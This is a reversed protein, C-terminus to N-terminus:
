IVFQESLRQLGEAEKALNLTAKSLQETSTLNQRAVMAIQEVAKVVMDGGKKQEVAGDAVQQTMRNMTEVARMIEKAGKAQETAGNTVERTIHQMNAATKLIQSAGSSQEQTASYVESVLTASQNVSDVIRQLITRTLEMAQNTDKQVAEVFATIERTSHMSREALRKVEEAVVAFGKGADGARAAEIAANLALLNTQDAIEEIMKVIKGIDKSSAGISTIMRTLEAGGENAARSATKSVDDVTKVKAAVSKISTIMQELTGSTLEVSEQLVGSNKAIQEISAGIQQVSTSTEDVNTALAQSSKAAYEIQSAMEVMTSSTEETSTAQAEAGKTIQTSSASIEDASTAIQTSAQKIRAIMGRLNEVTEVVSKALLGAEDRRSTDLAPVTLNGKAVGRMAKVVSTVPGTIGRSITIGLFIAIIAGFGTAMASTKKARGEASLAANRREIASNKSLELLERVLKSAEVATRGSVEISQHVLAVYQPGQQISTGDVTVGSKAMADLLRIFDQLLRMFEQQDRRWVDWAASTKKWSAAEEKTKPLPEYTSIADEGRALAEEINSIYRTRSSTDILETPIMLRNQASDVASIAEAIAMLSVVSPLNVDSIDMINQGLRGLGVYGVTGVAAGILAVLVFGGILKVSIGLKM